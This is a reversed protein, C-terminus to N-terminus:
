WQINASEDWQGGDGEVEAVGDAGFGGHPQAGYGADYHVVQQPVQLVPIVVGGPEGLEQLPM